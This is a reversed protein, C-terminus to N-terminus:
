IKVQTIVQDKKQTELKITTVEKQENKRGFNKFTTVKVYTVADPADESNNVVVFYDGKKAHRIVYENLGLIGSFEGGIKTLHNEASAFESFPDVIKVNLNVDDRNWDVVIRLDFDSDIINHSALDNTRITPENQIMHNVEHLTITKFSSGNTEGLDTDLFTSLTNFAIQGKGVQSYGLALDRYSKVDNPLKKLIKNNVVNAEDIKGLETLRYAFARLQEGSITESNIVDNLVKKSNKEDNNKEFFNYVDLHYTSSSVYKEKDLEYKEIIQSNSNMKEFESLYGPTTNKVKVKLRKNYKNEQENYMKKAADSSGNDSLSKKTKVILVGNAAQSGYLAAGNAGKHVTVSEILNYDITQLYDYTSVVGDIVVLASNNAQISRIGRLYVQDNAVNLGSVKGQLGQINNNSNAINLNDSEIVGYATTVEDKSKKIGLAGEIRNKNALLNEEMVVVIEESGGVPTISQMYGDHSFILTDKAKARISFNGNKDTEYSKKSGVKAISVNPLAQKNEDYVTGIVRDSDNQSWTTLSFLFIFILPLIKKM